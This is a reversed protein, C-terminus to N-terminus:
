IIQLLECLLTVEKLVINKWVLFSMKSTILSVQSLLITFDYFFPPPSPPPPLM